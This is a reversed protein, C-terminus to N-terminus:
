AKTGLLAHAPTGALNSGAAATPALPLYWRVPEVLPEGAFTDGWWEEAEVFFDGSGSEQWYGGAARLAGVVANKGYNFDYERAPPYDRAAGLADSRTGQILLTQTAEVYEIRNLNLSPAGAILDGEAKVVIQPMLSADGENVAGATCDVFRPRVVFLEGRSAPDVAPQGTYFARNYVGAEFGEAYLDVVYQAMAENNWLIADSSGSLLTVNAARRFWADKFWYQDTYETHFGNIVQDARLNVLRTPFGHEQRNGEKIVVGLSRMARGTFNEISLPHVLPLPRLKYDDFAEGAPGPPAANFARYRGIARPAQKTAPDFDHQWGGSFSNHVKAGRTSFVIGDAFSGGAAHLNKIRFPRAHLHFFTCRGFDHRGAEGAAKQTIDTFDNTFDVATMGDIDGAEDGAEAMYFAGHGKAFVLDKVTENSSHNDLGIGLTDYFACGKVSIPRRSIGCGHLHLAYRGKINSDAALPTVEAAGIDAAELRKDTRGMSWFAVYHFAGRDSAMQMVHGREGAPASLGGVSSFKINRTLNLIRVNMLDGPPAEAGAEGSAGGVLHDNVLTTTITVSSAGIATVTGYETLNGPDTGGSPHMSVTPYKTPEIALFDGVDWDAPVSALPIVNTGSAVGGSPTLAVGTKPKGYLYVGGMSVLGKGTLRPDEALVLAGTPFVFELSGDFPRNLSGARLAGTHDIVITHAYVVATAGRRAKLVGSVAITKLYAAAGGIDADFSVEIGEPILVIDGTGPVAGTDWTSGHNFDGNAVAIADPVLGNAWAGDHLHPHLDHHAKLDLQLPAMLALGSLNAELPLPVPAARSAAIAEFDPNVVSVGDECAAVTLPSIINDYHADLWDDSLLSSYELTLSVKGAHSNYADLGTWPAQGPAHTGSPETDQTLTKAANDVLLTPDNADSSLDARLAYCHWANATPPAQDSWVGDTTTFDYVFRVRGPGSLSRIDGDGGTSRGNFIAKHDNFTTNHWYWFLRTHKTALAAGSIRVKAGNAESNDQNFSTAPLGGPGTDDLITAGITAMARNGSLDKTRARWSAAAFSCHRYVDNAGFPEDEAPQALPFAGAGVWLYLTEGTTTDFPVRTAIMAAEAGKNFALLHLPLRAANLSPGYSLRIDGGDSQVASWFTAANAAEAIMAATVILIFGEELDRALVIPFRTLSAAVPDDGASPFYAATMLTGFRRLRGPWGGPPAGPFPEGERWVRCRETELVKLSSM